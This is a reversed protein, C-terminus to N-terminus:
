CEKGVRREESRADFTSRLEWLANIRAFLKKNMTIAAFHRSMKPAIDRELGQIVDNTHAGAKAWFVASVRDLAEGALELPKLTNIISAPEENNAITEIEAAHVAFAHDFVGAFDDDKIAAFDPLGLPGNWNTVPSSTTSPM